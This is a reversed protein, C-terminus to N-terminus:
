GAGSAAAVTPSLRLGLERRLLALSILAQLMTTALSLYWVTRIDFHQAHSLLTLPVVFTVLRSASAIMSPLTHGLGQFMGSCTFILASPVFNWSIISLFEAGIKVVGADDTFADILVAPRWQCFLTLLLMLAGGFLAAFRFTQRVRDFSGAGFNQGAVPATAFAVAMIPLLMAQMVRQGIGFGAQAEAGFPRIAAYIVVLYVFMLMFEAGSPTGIRLIRRWERMRPALLARDVAVTHEMREFIRWLIVVGILIALTTALGAGAVGLPRGTGWGAILVPALAANILVTLVQVVM